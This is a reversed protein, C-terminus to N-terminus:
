LADAKGYCQVEPLSGCNVLNKYIKLTSCEYIALFMHIYPYLHPNGSPQGNIWCTKLVRWLIQGMIQLLSFLPCRESNGGVLQPKQLWLFLLAHNQGVAAVVLGKPQKQLPRLVRANKLQELRNEERQVRWNRKTKKRAFAIGGAGSKGLIALSTARSVQATAHQKTSPRTTKYTDGLPWVCATTKWESHIALSIWSTKGQRHEATNNPPEIKKLRAAPKCMAYTILKGPPPGRRPLSKPNRSRPKPTRRTALLRNLLDHWPPVIPLMPFYLGFNFFMTRLCNM